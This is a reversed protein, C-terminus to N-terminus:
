AVSDTIAANRAEWSKAHNPWVVRGDNTWSVPLPALSWKTYANRARGRVAKDRGNEAPTGEYLHAPNICARNDCTHCCHMGAAIPRGLKGALVLRAVGVNRRLDRFYTVAYGDSNIPGLFPWCGGSGASRDTRDPIEAVIM